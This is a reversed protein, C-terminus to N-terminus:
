CEVLRIQTTKFRFGPGLSSKAPHKPVPIGFLKTKVVGRMQM